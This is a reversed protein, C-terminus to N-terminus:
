AGVGLFRLGEALTVPLPEDGEAHLGAAVATVDPVRVGAAEMARVDGLVQAPTGDAVLAGERLVMLRDAREALLEVDQEVVLVATGHDAALDRLLDFVAMRGDPDLGSTAEDIVVVPPDMVLASALVLRQQEGGSLSLPARGVLDGLGLRGLIAGVRVVMEPYPVALSEMGLAVEEGVTAQSLQAAPEDLVMGVLSAMRRVPTALADHGGVTVSGNVQATVLQPVIGNLCRCLTTKGAGNLGTLGVLEGARLDLSVGALADSAAGPYRVRLGHVSLVTGGRVRGSDV